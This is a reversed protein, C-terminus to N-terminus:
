LFYLLYNQFRLKLVRFIIKIKLIVKLAKKKHTEKLNYNCEYYTYSKIDQKKGGVSCTM